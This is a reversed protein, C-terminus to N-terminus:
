GVKESCLEKMFRLLKKRGKDFGVGAKSIVRMDSIGERRLIEDTM